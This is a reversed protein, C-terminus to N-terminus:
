EVQVYQPSLPSNPNIYVSSIILLFLNRTIDIIGKSINDKKSGATKDKKPIDLQNIM